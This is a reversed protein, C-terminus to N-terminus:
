DAVTADDSDDLAPVEFDTEFIDKDDSAGAKAKVQPKAEDGEAAQLSDSDDLTLEFESDSGVSAGEDSSDLNLEFHSDTAEKLAAAEGDSDAELSLEFESSASVEDDKGAKKPRPT